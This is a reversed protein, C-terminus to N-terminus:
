AYAGACGEYREVLEFYQGYREGISKPLTDDVKVLISTTVPHDTVMSVTVGELVGFNSQGSQSFVGCTSHLKPSETLSTRM